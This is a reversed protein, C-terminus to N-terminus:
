AMLTGVVCAQQKGYQVYQGNFGLKDGHFASHCNAANGLSRNLCRYYFILQQSVKVTSGRGEESRIFLQAM